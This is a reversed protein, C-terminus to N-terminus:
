QRSRETPISPTRETDPAPDEDIARVDDRAQVLELYATLQSLSLHPILITWANDPDHTM